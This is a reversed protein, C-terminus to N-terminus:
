DEYPEIMLEKSKGIVSYFEACKREYDVIDAQSMQLQKVSVINGHKDTKDIMKIYM